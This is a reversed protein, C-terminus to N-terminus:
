KTEKQYYTEIFKRVKPKANKPIENKKAWLYVTNSSRYGLKLAVYSCGEEQIIKKLKSIM